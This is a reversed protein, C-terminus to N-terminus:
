TCMPASACMIPLIGASTTRIQTSSSRMRTGSGTQASHWIPRRSRGTGATSGSGTLDAAPLGGYTVPALGGTFHGHQWPQDLHYNPDNPGTDHGVWKKGEVHPTGPHGPQEASNPHTAPAKPTGHYASPGHAPPVQHSGQSPHQAFAPVAFVLLAAFAIQISKM